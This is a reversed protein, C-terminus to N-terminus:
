VVWVMEGLWRQPRMAKILLPNLVSILGTLPLASFAAWMLPVLVQHSSGGNEARGVKELPKEGVWKSFMHTSIPMKGLKQPSFLCYKFGGGLKLHDVFCFFCLRFMLKSSIHLQFNEGWCKCLLILQVLLNMFNYEMNFKLLNWPSLASADGLSSACLNQSHGIKWQNINPSVMVTRIFYPVARPIGTLLDM